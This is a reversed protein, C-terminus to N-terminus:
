SIYKKCASKQLCDCSAINDGVLSLGHCENKKWLADNCCAHMVCAHAIDDSQREKSLNNHPMYIIDNGRVCECTIGHERISPLRAHAIIIPRLPTEPAIRDDNLAASM